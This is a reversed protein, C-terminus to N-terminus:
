YTLRVSMRNAVSKVGSVRRAIEGAKAINEVENAAGTLTVEGQFTKVIVEVSDGPLGNFERNLAAYVQMTLEHDGASVGRAGAAQAATLFFLLLACVLLSVLTTRRNM